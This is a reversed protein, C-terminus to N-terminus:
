SGSLRRSESGYDGGGLAKYLQVANALQARRVQVVNQQTTFLERQADVLQGGQRVVSSGAAGIGLGDAITHSPSFM